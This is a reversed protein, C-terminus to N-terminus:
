PTTEVWSLFTGVPETGPTGSTTMLFFGVQNATLFNTRAVTLIVNWTLGDPSFSSIRNAGDDQIRLWVPGTPQWGFQGTTASIATPNTYDRTTIVPDVLLNNSGTSVTALKGDSSQRFVLGYEWTKGAIGVLLPIVCATITYPTAPATKVRANLSVVGPLTTQRLILADKTSTTTAGAQNVWAFDADIIPTLPWLPGWPKWASGSDRAESIGDTPLYLRGATGASPRAAFTGSLIDVSGSGGGGSSSGGSIIRNLLGLKLLDAASLGYCAYCKTEDFLVQPDLPM